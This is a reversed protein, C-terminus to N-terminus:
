RRRSATSQGRKGRGKGERRRVKHSDNATVPFGHVRKMHRANEIVSEIRDAGEYNVCGRCVPEAYDSCM